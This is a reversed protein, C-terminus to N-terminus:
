KSDKSAPDDPKEGQLLKLPFSRSESRVLLEPRSEDPQATAVLKVQDHAGLPRSEYPFTLALEFETQGAPVDVVPPVLQNPLGSLSVKIPLDFGPVRQISGRLTDATGRGAMAQATEPLESVLEFPQGPIFEILPSVSTSVVSKGDASLLDAVLVMGWNREPLDAPIQLQVRGQNVYQDLIPTGEIRLMREVDDVQQDKNDKKITRKLQTQTTLLRMRISRTEQPQRLIDFRLPITTGRDFRQNKALLPKLSIPLPRSVALGHERRLANIPQSANSFEAVRLKGAGHGRVQLLGRFPADSAHLTVLGVSAGAPILTGRAEITDPLGHLELQIPGGYGARAVQVPLVQYGDRPLHTHDSAISLSFDPDTTRRISLHYLHTASGSRHLDSVQVTIRDCNGPITLDLGPDVTNPRDDNRALEKGTADQVILVGDLTSGARNARVDLRLKDGPRVQIQYQDVEKDNALRGSIGVPLESILQPVEEERYEPHESVLLTPQNGTLRDFVAVGATTEGALWRSADVQIATAQRFSTGVLEVWNKTGVQVALPYTLDAYDLDGVKLRFFGPNPGKFLEDHYEITYIGDAALMAECRADGSLQILGASWAVQVGKPDLLRLVPRTAAGLRRAEVDLVIRQGQKGAFQTRVIAPGRVTGHLAVPLAQIREGIAQQPLRDVGILVPSSIGNENAVRIAYRGPAVSESLQVEFQAEKDSRSLERQSQIPLDTILQNPRDLQSGRILLRTTAGAQLGRPSISTLETEAYASSSVVAALMWAALRNMIGPPTLWRSWSLM